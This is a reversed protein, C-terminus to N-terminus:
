FGSSMPGVMMAQLWSRIAKKTSDDIGLEDLSDDSIQLKQQLSELDLVGKENLEQILAQWGLLLAMAAPNQGNM